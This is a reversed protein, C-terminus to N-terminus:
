ATPSRRRDRGAPALHLHHRRGRGRLTAIMRFLSRGRPETLSATPEDLILVKANRASRRPSRSSRSSPCASRRRGAPRTSTAGPASWCNAPARPAAGELRGQALRRRAELSLAINEAVTLDPFLSPQQYIAAIGAVRAIAPSNHAVTQGGVILTGSDPTVAGTIVKILTSKGAGNEGILAHVEGPLLEFSVAKLAHVGAYSKSIDAAQLIPPREDSSMSRRNHRARTCADDRATRASLRTCRGPVLEFSVAKLAHVDAYSKAIDAAQLIPPQEDSTM